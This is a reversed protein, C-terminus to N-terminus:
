RRFCTETKKTKKTKRKKYKEKKIKEILKIEPGKLGNLQSLRITLIKGNDGNKVKLFTAGSNVEVSEPFVVVNIEEPNKNGNLYVDAKATFFSNKIM